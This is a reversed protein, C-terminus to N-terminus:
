ARRAPLGLRPGAAPGACTRNGRGRGDARAGAGRRRDHGRPDGWSEAGRWRRPARSPAGPTPRPPGAAASVSSEGPASARPCWTPAPPHPPVRVLGASSHGSGSVPARARCNAERLLHFRCRASVSGKRSTWPVSFLFCLRLRAQLCGCRGGGERAPLLSRLSGPLGAQADGVGRSGAPLGRVQGLHQVPSRSRQAGRRRCGSVCGRFFVRSSRLLAGPWGTFKCGKTCVIFKSKRGSAVLGSQLRHPLSPSHPWSPSPDGM